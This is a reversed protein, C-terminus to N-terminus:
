PYLSQSECKSEAALTALARSFAAKAAPWQAEEMAAVGQVYLEMSSRPPTAEPFLPAAAQM